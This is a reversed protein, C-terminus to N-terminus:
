KTRVSNKTSFQILKQIIIDREFSMVKTDKKGKYIALNHLTISISDVPCDRKQCQTLVPNVFHKKRKYVKSVSGM